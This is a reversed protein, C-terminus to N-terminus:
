PKLPLQVELTWLIGVLAAVAAVAIWTSWAQGEIAAGFGVLAREIWSSQVPAAPRPPDPDERVPGAVAAVAPKSPHVAADLARARAQRKKLEERSPFPDHGQQQDLLCWPCVDLGRAFVHQENIACAALEKEAEELAQQWDRASPRLSVNHHGDDFCRWMLEQVGAPLISWPPANPSPQIPGAGEWAYPWHGAAIREPLSPPEDSGAYVGAFPHMGQMLLQFILVALAFCDHEAVRNQDAFFVGQLEPPTYEPKGVRCRFVQEGARVQFSDADILTVLAQNSVLVNSENLDGIVYGAEHVTRVAAALNRASRILYGHHFLPCKRQRASPNYVDCIVKAKTVRPMLYGAVRGDDDLLRGMPWAVAVHGGSTQKVPPPAALMAALKAAREETPHHYIKAVLEAEGALAHIGAEGGGALPAAELMFERSGNELRLHM